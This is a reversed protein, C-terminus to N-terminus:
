NTWTNIVNGNNDKLYLTEGSDNIAFGLTTRPFFKTEGQALTTGNPINYANPNNLDGIKWGSLDVTAGSNNKIRISESDTPTAVVHYFYVSLPEAGTTTFSIETGYSTGISNTAFARVYYKTGLGLDSLGSVFIGLGTGDSTKTPLAVTPGSSTSWVVGRATVSAGGDSTINGGSVASVALVSSANTTTLTPETALTTFSAETGYSTSVSNTAYARVFYTTTRTLGTLSSAFTGKGIGDTTKTTLSITPGATTSWVVGRATIAAGGDDTVNGGSAASTATIASPSTTTIVPEASLATFSVETGYSTGVSNTAYSRVFYKVGPSLNTIASVFSGSGSGDSTKTALDVGPNSNTSWAIGRATVTEGGESTITGGGTASHTTISTITATTLEPPTNPQEDEGCRTIIFAVLLLSTTVFTFSKYRLM